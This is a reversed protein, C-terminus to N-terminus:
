KNAENLKKLKLNIADVAIDYQAATMGDVSECSDGSKKAVYGLFVKVDIDLDELLGKIGEAQEVTIMDQPTLEKKPEEKKPAPKKPKKTKPYTYMVVGDKDVITLASIKRKDDYEIDSVRAGSFVYPDCLEFGRGGNQKKQTPVPM